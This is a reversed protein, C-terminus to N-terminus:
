GSKEGQSPNALTTKKPEHEDYHKKVLIDPPGVLKTPTTKMYSNSQRSLHYTLWESDVLGNKVKRILYFAVFPDDPDRNVHVYVDGVEVKPAPHTEVIPEKHVARNKYSPGWYLVTIIGVATYVGAVVIIAAFNDVQHVNKETM